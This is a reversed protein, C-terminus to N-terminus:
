PCLARQWTGVPRVVKGATRPSTAMRPWSWSSLSCCSRPPRSSPSAHPPPGWSRVGYGASLLLKM